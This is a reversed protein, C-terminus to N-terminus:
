HVMGKGLLYMGLLQFPSTVIDVPVTVAYWSYMAMLSVRSRQQWAVERMAENYDGPPSQALYSLGDANQWYGQMASFSYINTFDMVLFADPYEQREIQFAYHTKLIEAPTIKDGPKLFLIRRFAEDNLCCANQQLLYVTQGGQIPEFSEYFRIGTPTSEVNLLRGDGILLHSFQMVPRGNQLLLKGPLIRYNAGAVLPRDFENIASRYQEIAKNNQM